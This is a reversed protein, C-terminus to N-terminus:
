AGQEQGGCDGWEGKVTLGWWYEKKSPIFRKEAIGKARRAERVIPTIGEPVM